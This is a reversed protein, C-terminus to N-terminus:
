ISMVSGFGIIEAEFIFRTASYDWRGLAFAGSSPDADPQPAIFASSFAFIELDLM